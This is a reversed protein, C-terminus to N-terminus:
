GLLTLVLNRFLGDFAALLLSLVIMVGLVAMGTRVTEARTPRTLKSWDARIDNIFTTIKLM